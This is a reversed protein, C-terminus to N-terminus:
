RATRGLTKNALTSCSSIKSVQLNFTFVQRARAAPWACTSEPLEEFGLGDLWDDVAEEMRGEIVEALAQRGPPRYSEGWQLGHARMAKVMAFADPLREITALRLM